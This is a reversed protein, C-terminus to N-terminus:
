VIVFDVPNEGSHPPIPKGKGIPGVYESAIFAIHRPMTTASLSRVSSTSPYRYKGRSATRM